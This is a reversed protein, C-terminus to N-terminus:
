GWKVVLMIMKDLAGLGFVDVNLKNRGKVSRMQTVENTEHAMKVVMKERRLSKTFFVDAMATRM